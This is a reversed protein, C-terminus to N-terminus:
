EARLAEVPDLRSARLAPAVGATVGVVFSVALALWAVTPHIEVPIGPVIAALAMAGGWGAGLGVAGGVTSLGVAEVLFMVLVQGRTAGVAMSLGIEATREHVSVWQITLIGVAGVLLSIAAIGAVAQTIVRMVNGFTELMAAQQLITFDENDDHRQKLLTRIREEVVDAHYPNDLKVDIETLDDRDFLRMALGVPMWATDDIDLGMIRGKPDMVGIVRLANGSIRVRQGLANETGFLERKLTAGLVCVPSPSDLDEEPLFRGLRVDMDFIDPMRHTIGYIMVSRNRQQREVRASGMAVPMVGRVGPVRELARADATTLKRTTGGLNSPIGFTEAKGPQIVIIDTGFQTFQDIIYVRVGEGISTLLVVSAIGIVIGVMTLASRLRHALLTRWTTTILEWPAM